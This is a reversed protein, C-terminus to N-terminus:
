DTKKKRKKKRKNDIKDNGKAKGERRRDKDCNMAMQRKEQRGAIM